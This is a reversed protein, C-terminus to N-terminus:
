TVYSTDNTQLSSVRPSTDNAKAPSVEPSTDNAKPPSVELSTDNAKSLSIEPKNRKEHCTPTDDSNDCHTEFHSETIIAV